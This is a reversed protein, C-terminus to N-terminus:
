VRSKRRSQLLFYFKKKYLSRFYKIVGFYWLYSSSSLYSLCRRVLIFSCSVLFCPGLGYPRLDSDGETNEEGKKPNRIWISLKFSFSCFRLAIFWKVSIGQNNTIEYLKLVIIWFLLKELIREKGKRGIGRFERKRGRKVYVGPWLYISGM